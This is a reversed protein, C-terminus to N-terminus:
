FAHPAAARLAAVFAPAGAPLPGRRTVIGIEIPAVAPAIRVFRVRRGAVAGITSPTFAVGQSGEVAAVLSPAGDVQAAVRLSGGHRRRVRRLWDHYDSYGSRVYTVLPEQLAEALTVSRRRALPHDPAVIIGVSLEGLREFVLGRSRAPPPKVVLALDLTRRALGQLIEDSSLDQLNVRVQPATKRLVRLARPVLEVTPLPSYGVRLESGQRGAAARFRRVAEDARRLVARADALFTRGGATLRVQRAGREFLPAGLEEELLRMQRSLPPQSVHLREAARTISQAEAVAVFYRLHRLEM